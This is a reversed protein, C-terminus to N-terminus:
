VKSPVAPPLEKKSFRCLLAEKKDWESCFPRKRLGLGKENDRQILFLWVLIPGLLLGRLFGVLGSHGKKANIVAGIIGGLLAWFSSCSISEV